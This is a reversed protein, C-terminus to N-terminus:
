SQKDHRFLTYTMGTSILYLASTSIFPAAYGFFEILYGGINASAGWGATFAITLLANTLPQQDHSVKEMAFNLYLPQAMNMLAARMFFALLALYLNHTIGLVILFPISFLQSFVVTRIKGKKEAVMPAVLLGTIMLLQQISYFIGIMDTSTQFTDKFYLNFFPISLGAGIGVILNPLFLKLIILRNAGIKMKVPPTPPPKEKIMFFPILSILVLVSLVLLAYRYAIYPVFGYTEIIGPLFGGLVNGIVGAVLMCAFQMSFLYPREEPTSNRMFFPAAAVRFFVSAGGALIGATLIMHYQSVTVQVLYSFMAIPAAAILLRKIPFRRMVMSAPLAMLVTGLTTASIITGIKGELFGFERLYLNFLLMFGSFGMGTFFTGALFLRANRSFLRLNHLYESFVRGAKQSVTLPQSFM